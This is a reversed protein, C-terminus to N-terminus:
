NTSQGSRVARVYYDLDDVGHDSCDGNFFYVGWAVGASRKDATWIWRQTKGFLSDINLGDSKMEREMLSMAEELTPLRWGHCDAFALTIM